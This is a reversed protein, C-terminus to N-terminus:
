ATIPTSVQRVQFGMLGALEQGLKLAQALAEEFCQGLLTSSMQGNSADNAGIPKGVVLKNLPVGSAAIEFLSSLPVSPDSTTLLGACTTYM